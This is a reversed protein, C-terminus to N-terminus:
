NLKKIRIKEGPHIKSGEALNNWKLLDEGTVGQYQSAIKWLTDGNKVEYYIFDGSESQTKAKGTTATATAPATEFKAANKKPLYVAINRGARIKNGNIDNWYRLDAVRVHYHEAITNLSEGNKVKHSIKKLNGSPVPLYSSGRYGMPTIVKFDNAFYQNNKYRVISDQMDVFRTALVSPLRLPCTMFKGPVIDRRYQPNLDRLIDVPLKLVDAIQEFHINEHIMVTDSYPLIDMKKPTLNHDKYFNIAYTAAIYAPVYGRTERPLYPYIEWYNTKGGSRRIARNVNGPGCNYAAIVLTWDNYISYMDRLYRAAADTEIAADRREDVFSNINLKYLRGTGYMFQWLGTAGCRSVARPNLASEIVALYKLELPMDYRDLIDEFIPFYYDKLGLIEELKDRKKITYVEIYKKVINNYTLGVVSPIKKIREIYFSDPRDAYISLSDSESLVFPNDVTNPQAHLTSVLSDINRDYNLFKIGNAGLDDDSEDDITDNVAIVTDKPIFSAQLAFPILLTFLLITKKMKKM